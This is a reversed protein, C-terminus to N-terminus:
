ETVEVEGNSKVHVNYHRAEYRDTDYLWYFYHLGDNRKEMRPPEFQDSPWQDPKLLVHQDVSDLVLGHGRDRMKLVIKAFTHVDPELGQQMMRLVLTDFDKGQGSSLIEHENVFFTLELYNGSSKPTLSFCLYGGLDLDPVRVVSADNFFEITDLYAKLLSDAKQEDMPSTNQENTNLSDDQTSNQACMTVSFGIVVLLSFLSGKM